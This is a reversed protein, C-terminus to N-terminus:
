GLTTTNKSQMGKRKLDILCTISNANDIEVIIEHDSFHQDFWRLKVYRKRRQIRTIYYPLAHFKDKAPTAHKRVIIINEKGPDKAHPVYRTKLHTITDQFKHLEAQSVDRQAQLAVNKYGRNQLNDNLM